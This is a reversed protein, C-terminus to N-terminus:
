LPQLLPKEPPRSLTTPTTHGSLKEIVSSSIKKLLNFINRQISKLNLHLSDSIQQTTNIGIAIAALTITEGHTLIPNTNINKTITLYAQFINM